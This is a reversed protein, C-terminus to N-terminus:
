TVIMMMRMTLIRMKTMIMIRTANIRGKNWCIYGLLHLLEDICKETNDTGRYFKVNSKCTIEKRRCLLSSPSPSRLFAVGIM